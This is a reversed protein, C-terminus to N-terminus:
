VCAGKPLTKVFPYWNSGMAAVFAPPMPVERTTGPVAPDWVEAVGPTPGSDCFETGGVILIQPM